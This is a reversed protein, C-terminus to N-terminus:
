RDVHVSGEEKDKKVKMWETRQGKRMKLVGVSQAGDDTLM